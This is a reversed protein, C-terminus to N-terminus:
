RKRRGSPHNLARIAKNIKGQTRPPPCCPSGPSDRGRGHSSRGAERRPAHQSRGTIAGLAKGREKARNIAGKILCEAPSPRAASRGPANGAGTGKCVDRVSGQQRDRGADGQGKLAKSIERRSAKDRGLRVRAHNGQRHNIEKSQAKGGKPNGQQNSGGPAPRGQSTLLEAPGPQTHRQSITNPHVGGKERYMSQIAQIASIARIQTSSM